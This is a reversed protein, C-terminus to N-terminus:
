NRNYLGETINVGDNGDDFTNNNWEVTVNEAKLNEITTGDPYCYGIVQAANRRATVATNTVKVNKVTVQANTGCFGIAGGCKDGDKDGNIFMANVKSRNVTCNEITGYQNYGCIVGVYHSGEVNANEFNLNRITGNLWGIFGASGDQSTDVVVRMNRITHGNGEITGGFYRNNIQALSWNIDALDIDAM